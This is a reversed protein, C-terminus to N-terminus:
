IELLSVLGCDETFKQDLCIKFKSNIKKFLILCLLVLLLIINILFYFYFYFAKQYLSNTAFVSSSLTQFQRFKLLVFFGFKALKALRNRAAGNAVTYNSIIESYTIEVLFLTTSERWLGAFLKIEGNCSSFKKCKILLSILWMIM